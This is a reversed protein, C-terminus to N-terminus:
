AARGRRFCPSVHDLEEGAERNEHADVGHEREAEVNLPAVRPEEVDADRSEERQPGVGGGQERDARGQGPLALVVEEGAVEGASHVGNGDDPREIQPEEDRQPRRRERAADDREEDAGDRDAQPAVIEGDRREADGFARAEDKEVFSPEAVAAAAEVRDRGHELARDLRLM